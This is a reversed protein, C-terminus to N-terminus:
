GMNQMAAAIGNMTLVIAHRIPSTEEDEAAERWRRLLEIQFLNLADTWSKRFRVSASLKHEKELLEKQNTIALVAKKAKEFEEAIRQHFRKDGPNIYCRAIGLGSQAMEQQINDIIQKFFQCNHYMEQLRSLHQDNEAIITSLSDGIGYWGPLHYRTQIWTVRWPINGLGDSLRQYWESFGSDKILKRYSQMAYESIQEMLQTTEPACTPSSNNEPMTKLVAHIIHEIHRRAIPMQGYRFSIAEGPETFRLKGNCSVNPMAFVADGAKKGGCTIPSGHGHFLRFRIHHDNCIKAMTEQMNYLIRHAKLYGGDKVCEYYGLMIEQFDKQAKLHLAYVPNMFLSEMIQGANQTDEISEFMPIINILSEAKGSKIRWLGTEKALLLVELVDSVSRTMSIVYGDVTRRDKQMAERILQFTKIVSATNESLATYCSILPRPNLLERELLLIKEYEPMQAYNAAVGASCFLEHISKEHVDSHQRIDLSVLHFGFVRVCIMLDCLLGCAAVDDLGSNEVCRELLLLDSLFADCSYSVNAPNSIMQTIRHIMYSLKLRYPEYRHRTQMNDSLSVSMAEKELSACLEKPISLRRSSISFEQWLKKLDTLYRKLASIRYTQLAARITEPTVASNGAQDGGIWSHYRFFVPLQCRENFYAEFVDQVDSYIRPVTEWISTTCFHLSNRVEDDVSLHEARREDTVMILAIQRYIHTHIEEQESLSLENHFRLQSLLASIRKQKYLISGRRAETPHSTLTPRIDLHGFLNLMQDFTMGKKKLYCFADALSERVPTEPNQQLAAERDSRIIEQREAENALHFFTTYTRVLWVIEELSMDHIDAQIERWKAESDGAAKCLRILKDALSFVREGAQKRLAHGLLMGLLHIQERLPAPIGSDATTIDFGQWNQM